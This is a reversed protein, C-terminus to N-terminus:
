LGILVLREAHESSGPNPSIPLPCKRAFYDGEIRSRTQRLWRRIIRSSPWAYLQATSVALCVSSLLYAILLTRKENGAVGVPPLIEPLL